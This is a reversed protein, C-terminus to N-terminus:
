RFEGRHAPKTPRPRIGAVKALFAGLGGSRSKFLPNTLAPQAAEFVKPPNPPNPSCNTSTAVIM